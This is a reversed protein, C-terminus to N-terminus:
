PKGCDVSLLHKRKALHPKTGEVCGSWDPLPRKLSDLMQVPESKNVGSKGAYESKSTKSPASTKDSVRSHASKGQDQWQQRSTDGAPGPSQNSSSRHHSSPHPIHQVMHVRSTSQQASPSPRSPSQMGHHHMMTPFRSGQQWAWDSNMGPAGPYIVDNTRMGYPDQRSMMHSRYFYPNPRTGPMGHMAPSIGMHYPSNDYPSRMMPSPMDLHYDVSIDHQSPPNYPHYGPPMASSHLPPRYSSPDMSYSSPYGPAPFIDQGSSPGWEQSGQPPYPPPFSSPPTVQDATPTSPGATSVPPQSPAHYPSAPMALLSETEQASIEPLPEDSSMDQPYSGVPTSRSEDQLVDSPQEKDGKVSEQVVVGEVEQSSTEGASSESTQSNLRRSACLAKPVADGNVKGGEIIDNFKKLEEAEDKLHIKKVSATRRFVSSGMKSLCDALSIHRVHCEYPLLLKGYLQM